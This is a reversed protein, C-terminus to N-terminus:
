AFLKCALKLNESHFIKLKCGDREMVHLDEKNLCQFSNERKHAPIKVKGVKIIIKLYREVRYDERITYFKNQPM